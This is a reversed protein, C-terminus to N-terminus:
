GTFFKILNRPHKAIMIQREKTRSATTYIETTKISSHGLLSQIYRIDVEQELMLTAFTHRIVHPTIKGPIGAEKAYKSVMNRVSQQSLPAKRQNYFLYGQAEILDSYFEIHKELAMIVERNEIPILREKDGKGLIRVAGLHQHFDELKIACLESVRIGTAFLLEMIAVNQVSVKYAPKRRDAEWQKRYATHLIQEMSVLPLFQPIQKLRKMKTNVKSFPDKDIIEEFELWSAFAHVSALKRKATRPMYKKNLVRCFRDLNEKCLPDSDAKQLELFQRLDIQYGKMTAASLNRQDKCFVLYEQILAEIDM